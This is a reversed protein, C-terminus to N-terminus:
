GRTWAGIVGPVVPRREGLLAVMNTDEEVASTVTRVKRSASGQGQQAAHAGGLPAGMMPAMRNHAGHGVGAGTAGTGGGGGVVPNAGPGLPLRATGERHPSPRGALTGLPGTGGFMGTASPGGPVTVGRGSGATSTEARSLPLPAGPLSTTLGSGGLGAPTGGTLAPAGPLTGVSAATTEMDGIGHLAQVGDQVTGFDGAGALQQLVPLAADLLAGPNSLGHLGATGSRSGAGAIEGMGLAIDGGGDAGPNMVMLNRIPPVGTLVDPTYRAPFERLFAQEAAARQVPDPIQGLAHLALHVEVNGKQKANSVKMVSDSMTAANASFTEGAHAVDTIRDIAADTVAGRNRAGLEGAVAHLEEAIGGVAESLSNWMRLADVLDGIKTATFEAALESLSTAPMVVPLSFSFNEFRPQPREPFHIGEEGVTGGEDAIDLGRAVFANQGVLAAYSATLAGSLWAVQEVYSRLVTMASGTGGNVVGGHEGGLQDLGSVGSFSRNLTVQNAEGAYNIAKQRIEKLKLIGDLISQQDLIM